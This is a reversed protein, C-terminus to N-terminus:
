IRLLFMLGMGNGSSYEDTDGNVLYYYYRAFSSLGDATPSSPNLDSPSVTTAAFAKSLPLPMRFRFSHRRRPKYDLSTCFVLMALITSKIVRRM